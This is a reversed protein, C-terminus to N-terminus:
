HLIARPLSTEYGIAQAGAYVAARPINLGWAGVERVLMTLWRRTGFFYDESACFEAPKGAWALSAAGRLAHFPETVVLVREFPDLAPRSFLANELTSRSMGEWTVQTEPVGLAIAHLAMEHGVPRNVNPGIGTTHIHSLLGAELLAVAAEVRVSSDPTLDGEPTSGSGLVIAVDSPTTRTACAPTFVQSIATLGICLAVYGFFALILRRM